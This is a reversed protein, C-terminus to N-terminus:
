GRLRAPPMADARAHPHQPDRFWAVTRALGDDLTTEPVWGLLERAPGLDAARSERELPRDPEAGFQPVVDHGVLGALREAVSRITTLDGSGIDITRGLALAARHDAAALFASVVDDIYVWDVARTGSSLRPPEGAMLSRITYPIVKDQNQPGPGYVMFVRLVVVPLDYLAHFMRAYGTAASKTAAYPSVPVAAADGERVDSGPEQMSGALVVRPVSGQGAAAALVNVTALLNGRLSPVVVDLGQAGTVHGAVHFVVEPATERMVRSAADPDSLDATWWRVDHSDGATRAVAHVEAGAAVLAESLRTGIFGSAGTVLARRGDLGHPMVGHLDLSGSSSALLAACSVLLRRFRSM